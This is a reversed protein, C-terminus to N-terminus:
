ENKGSATREAKVGQVLRGRGLGTLVRFFFLLHISFGMFIPAFITTRAKSRLIFSRAEEDVEFSFKHTTFRFLENLTNGTLLIKEFNILGEENKTPYFDDISTLDSLHRALYPLLVLNDSQKAEKLKTRYTRYNFSHDCLTKLREYAMKGREGIM